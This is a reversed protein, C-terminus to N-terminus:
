IVSVWSARGGPDKQQPTEPEYDIRPEWCSGHYKNSTLECLSKSQSDCELYQAAYPLDLAQKDNLTKPVIGAGNLIDGNWFTGNTETELSSLGNGVQNIMVVPVREGGILGQKTFLDKPGYTQETMSSDWIFLDKEGYLTSSGMSYHLTGLGGMCLNKSILKVGLKAM